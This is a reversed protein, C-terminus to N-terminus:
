RTKAKDNEKSNYLFRCPLFSTIFDDTNILNRNLRKRNLCLISIFHSFKLSTGTAIVSAILHSVSNFINLVSDVLCFKHINFYM